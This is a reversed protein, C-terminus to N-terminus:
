SMTIVVNGRKHGREAYSHAESIHEIPYTTDIVPKMKEKEILERIHDIKEASDVAVGAKIPKGLIMFLYDSLVADSALYIGRKKLVEKSKSYSTKGVTNFVVDYKKGSKTFDEKSYDIVYDAGLSKVLEINKGSCVGTVIAGLSKALQVAAVGVSGSAGFILVEQGPQINAKELFFLATQSGVPFSAAQEFSTNAPMKALSKDEALCIYEAYAGSTFGTSGFVKDGVTYKTVTTGTEVVEGSFEYGLIQNKPKTFGNFLRVLFPNAARMRFDAASVTTAHIKILIEQPKPLPKDIDEIKLVEPSGYQRYIAAKM